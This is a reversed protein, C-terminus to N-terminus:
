KEFIELNVLIIGDIKYVAQAEDALRRFSNKGISYLEAGEQMRVFKKSVVKMNRYMEEGSINMVSERKNAM